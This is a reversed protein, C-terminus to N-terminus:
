EEETDYFCGAFDAKGEKVLELMEDYTDAYVYTFSLGTTKGVEDLINPIIGDHSDEDDICFFPHSGPIVAVKIPKSERIYKQEEQTLWIQTNQQGDESTDYHEEYFTPINDTIRALAHNLGDLVEKNGKTTAFYYPQAQFKAVIRYTGDAELENGLLLDVEGSELFPYLGDDM